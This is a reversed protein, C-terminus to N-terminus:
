ALDDMEPYRKYIPELLEMQIQGILLGVSRHLGRMEDDSYGLRADELVQTLCEVARLSGAKVLEASDKTMAFNGYM